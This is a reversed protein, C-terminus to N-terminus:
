LRTWEDLDHPEYLGGESGGRGRRASSLGVSKRKSILPMAFFHGTSTSHENGNVTRRWGASPKSPQIPCEQFRGLPQANTLPKTDDHFSTNPSPSVTYVRFLHFLLRQPAACKSRSAFQLLDDQKGTRECNTTTKLYLAANHLAGAHATM